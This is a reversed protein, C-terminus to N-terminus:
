AVYTAPTHCVANKVKSYALKITDVTGELVKEIPNSFFTKLFQM